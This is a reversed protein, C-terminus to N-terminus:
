KEIRESTPTLLESNEFVNGVVEIDNMRNLSHEDTLWMCEDFLVKSIFEENDSVTRFHYKIIDGEYIEKGNKDKLGTYQMLEFDNFWTQSDGTLVHGYVHGVSGDNRFWLSVVEMWKNKKNGKNYARFKIERM